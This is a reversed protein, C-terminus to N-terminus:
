KERGYVAYNKDIGNLHHEILLVAHGNKILDRDTRYVTWGHYLAWHYKEIDQRMGAARQHRGSGDKTIGEVEVAFRQPPWAFDFRWDKLREEALRRRIGPANGIIERAFRYQQVPLQLRMAEIQFLLDQELKSM